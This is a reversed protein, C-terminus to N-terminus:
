NTKFIQLLLDIQAQTFGVNLLRQQTTLVVPTVNGTLTDLIPQLINAVVQYGAQTMHAGDAFYTLNAYDGDQGIRSDGGVDALGDAFTSWNARILANYQNRMTEGTVYVNNMRSVMTLVVVKEGLSREYLCFARLSEYAQQPSSGQGGWMDNTGAWVVIIDDTLNQGLNNNVTTDAQQYISSITRSNTGLNVKTYQSPVVMLSPYPNTVALGQTLSDGVFAIIPDSSTQPPTIPPTTTAPPIVVVTSSGTEIETIGLSNEGITLSSVTGYPTQFVANGSLPFTIDQNVSPLDTGVVGYETVFNGTGNNILAFYSHGQIIPISSSFSAVGNTIDAVGLVALTDDLIQAKTAHTGSSVSLSTIDTTTNATFRLGFNGASIPTSGVAHFNTTNTLAYSFGISLLISLTTILKKM